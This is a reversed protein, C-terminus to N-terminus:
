RDISGTVQSASTIPVAFGLGVFTPARTPNALATVIGVVQGRADVLPGGSSGPNVAADFQILGALEGGGDERLISRDLGSVVGATLTGSFGFPNGIPYVEEGVRVGGGLVAPVVIQPLHAPELVALDREADARAVTAPSRTGDAFVVEVVDAGDLVHLATLVLGDQNVVVGSGISAGEDPGSRVLVLSPLLDRYVAVGPPEPVTTASARTRSPPAPDDHGGGLVVFGAIGVVAGLAGLVLPRLADRRRGATRRPGSPGAPSTPEDTASLM